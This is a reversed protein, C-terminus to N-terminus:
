ANKVELKKAKLGKNSAELKLRFLSEQLTLQSHDRNELVMESGSKEFRLLVSETRPKRSINVSELFRRRM